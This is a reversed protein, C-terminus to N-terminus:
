LSAESYPMPRVDSAEMSPAVSAGDLHRWEVLGERRMALLTRTLAPLSIRLDAAIARVSNLGDVAELIRLREPGLAGASPDGAVHVSLQAVSWAPDAPRWTGRTAVDLPRRLPVYAAFDPQTVMRSEIFLRDMETSVFCDLAEEPTEVIPMGRLNFSTNLVVAFGTLAKFESILMHLLPNVIRSVTQVRATGDVHTIGALTERYRERVPWIQLMFPSSHGDLIFYDGADEELVAPAFPRFSERFKVHANLTDKIAPVAPNALISRHGLARPGFEAGGQFWGVIEGDALARAAQRAIELPDAVAAAAGFQAIARDVREAPYRRGFSASMVQPRRRTPRGTAVTSAYYAAGAATGDDTAAPFIYVNDFGAERIIRTNTVSNLFTGGGLVLNPLGTEQRLRRALSVCAEELEWQVQAALACHFPSLPVSPDRVNLFREGDECSVLNLSALFPLANSYDLGTPTVRILVPDNSLRQGYPALGMTKGADDYYTGSQRFGLLMTIVHYIEGIGHLREPLLLRPGRPLGAIRVQPKLHRFVLRPEHDLSMVFASESERADGVISGYADVVLAAAADFGSAHFSACAHALHHGPHPLPVIRDDPLMFVSKLLAREDDASRTETSCGIVYRVDDFTIGAADLCYDVLSHLSRNLLAPAVLGRKIRVLREMGLAVQIDMDKLLCASYDHSFNLGLVYV